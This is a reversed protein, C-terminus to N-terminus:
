GNPNRNPDVQQVLGSFKSGVLNVQQVTQKPNTNRNRDVQQVLGYPKGTAPGTFFLNLKNVQQM